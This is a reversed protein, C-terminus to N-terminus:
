VAVIVEFHGDGDLDTVAIGSTTGFARTKKSIFEIEMASLVNCLCFFIYCYILLHM